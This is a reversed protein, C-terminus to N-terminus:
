EDRRWGWLMVYARQSWSSNCRFGWEGRQWVCKTSFTLAYTLNEVGCLRSFSCRALEWTDYGKWLNSAGRKIIFVLLACPEKKILNASVFRLYGRERTAVFHRQPVILVGGPDATLQRVVASANWWSFIPKHSQVFNLNMSCCRSLCKLM